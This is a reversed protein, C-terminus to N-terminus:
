AGAGRAGRVMPSRNSIASQTQLVAPDFDFAKGAEKAAAQAAEYQDLVQTPPAPPPRKPSTWGAATRPPLEQSGAPGPELSAIPGDGAAGEMQQGWERKDFYKIRTVKYGEFLGLLVIGICLQRRTRSPPSRPPARPRGCAGPAHVRLAGREAPRRTPPPPPLVAALLGVCNGRARTGPV